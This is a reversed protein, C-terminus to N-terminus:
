IYLNEPEWPSKSELIKKLDDYNRKIDSVRASSVHFFKEYVVSQLKYGCKKEPDKEGKKFEQLPKLEASLIGRVTNLPAKNDMLYFEAFPLEFHKMIKNEIPEFCEPDNSIDVSETVTETYFYGIRCKANSRSQHKSIEVIDSLMLLLSRMNDYKNPKGNPDNITEGKTTEGGENGIPEDISQPTIYTEKDGGRSELEIRQADIYANGFYKKLIYFFTANKDPDFKKFCKEILSRLDTKYSLTDYITEATERSIITRHIWKCLYGHIVLIDYLDSILKELTENFLEEKDKGSHDLRGSYYDEVLKNVNRKKEEFVWPASEQRVANMKQLTRM